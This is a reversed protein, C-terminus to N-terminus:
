SPTPTTRTSARTPARGAPSASGATASRRSRGRPTGCSSSGSARPRRHPLHGAPLRRRPDRGRTALLWPLRFRDRLRRRDAISPKFLTLLEYERDLGRAVMRDYVVQLNGGLEARSDSTFLVRRGNRRAIPGPWGTSRGPVDARRVAASRAGSSGRRARSGSRARPSRRRSRRPRPEVDLVFPRDAPDIARPRSTSAASSRSAGSPAIAADVRRRGRSACPSAAGRASSAGARRAGAADPGSGDHRQVAPVLQRRRGDPGPDAGHRDRDARDLAGGGPPAARGGPRARWRGRGGARAARDPDAGVGRMSALLPRAPRRRTPRATTPTPTPARCRGPPGSGAGRRRRPRARASRAPSDTSRGGTPAAIRAAGGLRGHGHARIRRGIRIWASRSAPPSPLRKPASCGWATRAGPPRAWGPQAASRARRRPRSRGARRRRGGPRAPRSRPPGPRGRAQRDGVVDDGAAGRAVLARAVAQGREVGVVVVDDEDVVRDPREHGTSTM